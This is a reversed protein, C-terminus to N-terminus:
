ARAGEEMEMGERFPAILSEAQQVSELERQNKYFRPGIGFQDKLDNYVEFDQLGSGYQAKAGSPLRFTRPRFPTGRIGTLGVMDEDIEKDSLADSYTYTTGDPGIRKKERAM